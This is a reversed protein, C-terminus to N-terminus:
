ASSGRQAAASLELTAHIYAPDTESPISCGGALFFSNGGAVLGERVHDRWSSLTQQGILLHDIGGMVCRGTRSKIDALSPTDGSRDHWNFAAVPYDLVDAFHVPAGHVHAINMDADAVANLLELDYPRVFVRFEEQGLLNTDAPISLFIGASGCALSRKAYTILNSTIVELASHVARPETRRLADLHQGCLRRLTTWPDFLTDVFFASGAIHQAILALADLQQRWETADIELPQLEALQDPSSLGELGAPLPYRYDNMVKLWDLQYHDFYGIVVRALGEGSAHQLGHHYWLSVPPRDPVGGELVAAVREIKQM